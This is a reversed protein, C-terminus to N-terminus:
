TISSGEGQGRGKHLPSTSIADDVIVLEDDVRDIKGDSCIVLGGLHEAELGGRGESPLPDLHPTCNFTASFEFTM